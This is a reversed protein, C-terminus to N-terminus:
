KLERLFAILDALENRSLQADLGQPMISVRGPEFADVASKPVRVEAREATVLYIAEATERKLIGTHVRGEKTAVVYPEYGRVFSASRTVAETARRM